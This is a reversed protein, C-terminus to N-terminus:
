VSLRLSEIISMRLIRRAPGLSSLFAFVVSLGFVLVFVTWPFQFAIPLQTFLARQIAMTWGVIVGIIMGMLSAACVGADSVFVPPSRCSPPCHMSQWLSTCSFIIIFAEEVYIRMLWLVKMGIARLIAIEKTQEVINTYMSSVLSFFCIIMVVFTAFVFFYQM